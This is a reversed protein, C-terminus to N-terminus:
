IVMRLDLGKGAAVMGKAALSRFMMRKADKGNLWGLLVTRRCKRVEMDGFFDFWFVPFAGHKSREFAARTVHVKFRRGEFKGTLTLTSLSTDFEATAKVTNM